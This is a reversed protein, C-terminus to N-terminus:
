QKDENLAEAAKRECDYFVSWFDGTEMKTTGADPHLLLKSHIEDLLKILDDYEM